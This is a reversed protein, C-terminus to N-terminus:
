KINLYNKINNLMQNTARIDSQKSNGCIKNTYITNPHKIIKQTSPTNNVKDCIFYNNKNELWKYLADVDYCSGVTTNVYIKGNGLIEFEKKKLLVVDRNLQTSIIDCTSLLKNLPLYKIDKKEEETKRTKSYYYVDAGFFKLANAIMTGTKGLGIVGIKVDTLEYPRERWQYKGLGHLLRILESIVYEPVAEDGYDKLYKIEINNNRVYEMDVNSYKDGYYSCCMGIYKVNPCAKLVNSTIKTSFSLLICDADDIRKIIDKENIAEEEYFVVEECYRKIEAKGEETLLIPELVVIKKFM